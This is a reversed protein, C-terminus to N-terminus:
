PQSLRHHNYHIVALGHINMLLQPILACVANVCFVILNLNQVELDVSFLLHCRQSTCPPPVTFRSSVTKLLVCRLEQSLCPPLM